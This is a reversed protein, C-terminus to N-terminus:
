GAPWSWGARSPRGGRAAPLEAAISAAAVRVATERASAREVVDRADTLGRNMSGALDAHGPRPHNVPPLDKYTEDKNAVQLAIPNGTAKGDRVGSLFRVTDQEM